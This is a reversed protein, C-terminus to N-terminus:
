GSVSTSIQAFKRNVRLKPVQPSGLDYLFLQFAYVSVLQVPSLTGKGKRNKEREMVNQKKNKAM